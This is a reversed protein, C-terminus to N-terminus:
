DLYFSKSILIQPRDTYGRYNLSLYNERLVQDYFAPFMFIADLINYLWIGCTTLYFIKRKKDYSNAESFKAQVISWYKAKEEFNKLHMNYNNIADKYDDVANRYKAEFFVTSIISGAQIVKIITGKVKKESYNQGWGPIVFSRIAAKYWTKSSLQIDFTRNKGKELFVISKWNEYGKKFARIRYKGVLDISLDCPTIGVISGEIYVLAGPPNSTININKTKNGQGWATYWINFYIILGVLIKLPM